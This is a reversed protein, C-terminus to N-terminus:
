VGGGHRAAALLAGIYLLLDDFEEFGPDIGGGDVAAQLHSPAADIAHLTAQLLMAGRVGWRLRVLLISPWLHQGSLLLLYSKAKDTTTKNDHLFASCM